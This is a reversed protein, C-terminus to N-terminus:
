VLGWALLGAIVVVAAAMAQWSAAFRFRPRRHVPAESWEDELVKMVRDRLERPPQQAHAASAFMAIGEDLTRGEERCSACGRLHRRVAADQVESLTGLSHDPLLERVEDCTM